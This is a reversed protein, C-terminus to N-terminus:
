LVPLWIAFTSGKSLESTLTIRGKLLEVMKKSISLGLGCGEYYRTYGESAQRFAEFIIKQDNESIGIGTDQVEIVVWEKGADEKKDAKITISGADTYKIANDIIYDVSKKLLVLDTSVLLQDNKINLIMELKKGEAKLFHSEAFGSLHETLNIKEIKLSSEMAELESLSLVGDLTNLLRKGSLDIDRVMEAQDPDQLEEMLFQSFGLIGILPTRFEHSMNGLITSKLRDSEEAREKAIVLESLIQKKDTIDEQIGLYHTVDGEKNRIPCIFTSVWYLEGNKKKNKYEGNWEQEALLADWLSKYSESSLYGSKLIRPTSGVAEEFKYGTMEIFKNNVYEIAGNLDTILIAVPSQAVAWYLKLIDAETKERVLIEEELMRNAKSLQSTREEVRHELEFHAKQLADEMKKRDSIDIFSEIIYETGGLYIEAETRIIPILVGGNKKLLGEERTKFGGASDNGLFFFYEERKRSILNEKKTGIIKQAMINADTIQGTSKNVIIIGTHISDLIKKLERTSKVIDNTRLAIKQEASEKIQNIERFLVCNHITLAFNNSHLRCLDILQEEKKLPRALTILNIGIIGSPVILPILVCYIKEVENEILEHEVVDSNKLAEAVAGAEVLLEFINKISNELHLATSTKYYFDFTEPDISFLTASAGGTIDLYIKLGDLIIEYDSKNLLAISNYSAIKEFFSNQVSNKIQLEM